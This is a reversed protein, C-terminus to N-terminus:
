PLKPLPIQTRANLPDFSVETFLESPGTELTGGTKVQARL